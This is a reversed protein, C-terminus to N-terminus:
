MTAPPRMTRCAGDYVHWIDTGLVCVDVGWRMASGTGRPIPMSAFSMREEVVYFAETPRGETLEVKAHCYRRGIQSEPLQIFASEEAEGLEKLAPGDAKKRQLALGTRSVVVKLVAPADCAPVRDLGVPGAEAAPTKGKGAMDAAGALSGTALLGALVLVSGTISRRM